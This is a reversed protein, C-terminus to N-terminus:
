EWHVVNSGWFFGLVFCRDSTNGIVLDSVLTTGLLWDSNVMTQGAWEKNEHVKVERRLLTKLYYFHTILDTVTEKMNIEQDSDVLAKETLSKWEIRFM